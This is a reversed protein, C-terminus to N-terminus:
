GNLRFLPTAGQVAVGEVGLVYCAVGEDHYGSNTLAADRETVSITYLHDNKQLRFLPFAGPSQTPFVYCAIGEDVYGLHQIAADREDTSTTYFHTDRRLRFFPVTGAVQTDFAHCSIGGDMYGLQSIASARESQSTTYFFDSHLTPPTKVTYAECFFGKLQGRTKSPNSELAQLESRSFDLWIKVETNHFNNDYIYVLSSGDSHEEFGYAVVQHNHIPNNTEGILGIPWPEGRRLHTKLTEWESKSRDLL